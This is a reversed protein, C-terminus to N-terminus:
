SSVHLVHWIDYIPCVLRLKFCLSWSCELYMFCLSGWDAYANCMRFLLCSYPRILFVVVGSFCISLVVCNIGYSCSYMWDHWWWWFFWELIIYLRACSWTEASRCSIYYMVDWRVLRDISWCWCLFWNWESGAVCGTLTFPINM